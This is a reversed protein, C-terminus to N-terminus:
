SISTQRQAQDNMYTAAVLAVSRGHDIRVVAKLLLGVVFRELYVRLM